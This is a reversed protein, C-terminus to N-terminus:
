QVGGPRTATLLAQVRARREMEAKLAAGGDGAHVLIQAECVLAPPQAAFRMPTQEITGVATGVGYAIVVAEKVADIHKQVLALCTEVPTDPRVAIRATVTVAPTM